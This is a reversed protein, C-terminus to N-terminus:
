RSQLRKLQTAFGSDHVKMTAEEGSCDELSRGIRQLALESVGDKRDEVARPVEESAKSLDQILVRV